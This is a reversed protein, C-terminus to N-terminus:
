RQLEFYEDLSYFSNELLYKQLLAKFKKQIILSQNKYMPLVNFVMVGMDKFNLLIHELMYCGEDNRCIIPIEPM